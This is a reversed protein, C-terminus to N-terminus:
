RPVPDRDRSGRPPELVGGRVADIAEHLTEFIRAEGVAATVGHRDLDSRLYSRVRGFVVGVGRRGLDDFLDRVSQAASYDIDTIAGADIIFWRVPNQADEALTRVEDAFRNVNAYFLDAGFRYIVLGPEAQEGPTAATPEWRGTADPALVGTHPRYSHRV